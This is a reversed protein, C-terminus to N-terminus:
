LTLVKRPSVQPVEELRLFQCRMTQETQMVQGVIHLQNVIDSVRNFGSRECGKQGMMAIEPPALRLRQSQSKSGAEGDKRPFNQGNSRM